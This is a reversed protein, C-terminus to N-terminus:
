FCSFVSFFVSFGNRLSNHMPLVLVVNVVQQCGDVPVLERSLLVLRPSDRQLDFADLSFDFLAEIIGPCQSIQTVPKAFGFLLEGQDCGLRLLDPGFLEVLGIQFGRERHEIGQPIRHGWGFPPADNRKQKLADTPAGDMKQWTGITRRTVGLLSALEV